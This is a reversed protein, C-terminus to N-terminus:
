RKPALLTGRCKKSGCRCAFQKKLTPTYREDIVLGYDYFLEEGPKLTRLSKIFIRGDVEDAPRAVPQREGRGETAALLKSLVAEYRRREEQLAEIRVDLRAM